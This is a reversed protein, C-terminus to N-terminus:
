EYKYSVIQSSVEFNTNVDNDNVFSLELTFNYDRDRDASLSIGRKQVTVFDVDWDAVEWSGSLTIPHDTTNIIDPTDSFTLTIRLKIDKADKTSNNQLNTEIYMTANNTNDITNHSIDVYSTSPSIDIFDFSLGGSSTGGTGSSSPILNDELTKIRTTLATITAGDTTIKTQLDTIKTNLQNVQNTINTNIGSIDAKTAKDTVASAMNNVQSQQTAIQATMGTTAKNVADNIQSSITAPFQNVTNQVAQVIQTLGSKAQEVTTNMNQINTTFDKKSVYNGLFLVNVAIVSVIIGVLVLLAVQKMSAGGGRNGSQYGKNGIVPDVKDERQQM